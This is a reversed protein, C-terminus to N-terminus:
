GLALQVAAPRRAEPLAHASVYCMVDCAISAIIEIGVAFMAVVQLRNASWEVLGALIHCAVAVYATSQLSFRARSLGLVKAVPVHRKQATSTYLACPFVTAGVYFWVGAFRYVSSLLVLRFCVVAFPLVILLRAFANEYWLVAALQSLFALSTVATVVVGARSVNSGLDITDPVAGGNAARALQMSDRAQEAWMRKIFGTPDCDDINDDVADPGGGGGERVRGAGRADGAAPRQPATARGGHASGHMDGADLGARYDDHHPTPDNAEAMFEDEAMVAMAVAFSDPDMDGFSAGYANHPTDTRPAKAIAATKGRKGLPTGDPGFSAGAGAGAAAGAHTRQKDVVLAAVGTGSAAVDALAAAVGTDASGNSASHTSVSSARGSRSRSGTRRSRRDASGKGSKSGKRSRNSGVPVMGSGAAASGFVIPGHSDRERSSAGGSSRSQPRGSNSGDGEPVGAASSDGGASRAAGMDADLSSDISKDASKDKSAPGRPRGLAGADDHNAIDLHVAGHSLPMDMPDEADGGRPDFAASEGRGNITRDVGAEASPATSAALNASAAPASSPAGPPLVSRPPAGHRGPEADAGSAAATPASFTDESSVAPVSSASVSPSAPIVSGGVGFPPLEDQQEAAADARRPRAAAPDDAGEMM